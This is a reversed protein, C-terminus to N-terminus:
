ECYGAWDTATLLLIWLCSPLTRLVSGVSGGSDRAAIPGWLAPPPQRVLPYGVRVQAPHAASDPGSPPTAAPLCQAPSSPVCKRGMTVTANGAAMM